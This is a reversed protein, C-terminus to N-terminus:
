AQFDLDPFRVRVLGEFMVLAWIAAAFGPAGFLKHQKQLRLIQYVFEAVLFNGATRGHYAEMLADVDRQFATWDFDDPVSLASRVIAAACGPSNNSALALFLDRFAAAIRTPSFPWSAPM